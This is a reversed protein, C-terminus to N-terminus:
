YETTTKCDIPTSHTPSGYGFPNWSGSDFWKTGQESETYRYVPDGLKSIIIEFGQCAPHKISFYRLGTSPHVRTSYAFAFYPAAISNLADVLNTVYPRGGIDIIKIYGLDISSTLFEVGDIKFSTIQLDNLTEQLMYIGFDQYYECVTFKCSCPLDCCTSEVPYSLFQVPTPIDAGAAFDRISIKPVIFPRGLYNFAALTRFDERNYEDATMKQLADLITGGRMESTYGLYFSVFLDNEVRGFVVSGDLAPTPELEWTRLQTAYNFYTNFHHGPNPPKVKGDWFYGAYKNADSFPTPYLQRVKGFAFFIRPGINFSREGNTNDWLRPINPMPERGNQKLWKTQAEFTPEFVPNTIKQVENPLDIGNLIKRSHAPDVLNFTKIYADNATAFEFQTYRKLTNRQPIEKISDAIIKKSLDVAPSESKLFGPVTEGHIQSTRPPHVIVTRTEWDTEIMGRTLHVGARFMDSLTLNPDLAAGVDVYDFRTLSQNNPECDFFLGSEIFVNSFDPNGWVLAGKQGEAILCDLEIIVFQSSNAPIEVTYDDSLIEGTEIANATNTPSIEAIHFVFPAPNPNENTITFKARFKYKSLFPLVSKLGLRWVGDIPNNFQLPTTGLAFEQNNFLVEPAGPTLEYRDGIYRGIIRGARGYEYGNGSGSYYDPKLLYLWLRRFWETEFILGDLTWGIECFGKKLLYVFSVLPRFDETSVSKFRYTIANQPPLTQDVWNGYDNLAWYTNQNINSGSQVNPTFDGSYAPFDGSEDVYDKTLYFTGFDVTNIKKTQILEIWHDSRRFLQCEWKKTTQNRSAKLRDFQIEHGDIRVSVDIFERRQDLTLLSEWDVFVADNIHSFDLDFVLVGETTIKNLDNLKEADKSLRLSFGSPTDLAVETVGLRSITETSLGKAIITTAM